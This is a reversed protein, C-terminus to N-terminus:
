GPCIMTVQWEFVSYETSLSSLPFVVTLFTPVAATWRWPNSYSNVMAMVISAFWTGNEEWLKKVAEQLIPDFLAKREKKGKPSGLVLNKKSDFNQWARRVKIKPTKWDLDEPKLAFVESRRLGSLFMASCVALEMIRILVGPEYLKIMEEEPLADRTKSEYVPKDIYQFPNIWRRNGRQYNSFAMIVFKLLGAFTRTSGMTRGDTLKKVSMRAIFELADEEEVEAMKLETLPDGKIHVRFYSQYNNISDISYPRNKAANIGTRPSTEIRTFKELRDGFTM